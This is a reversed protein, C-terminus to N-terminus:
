NKNPDVYPLPPAYPVITGPPVASGAGTLIKVPMPLITGTVGGYGSQAANNVAATTNTSGGGFLAELTPILRDQSELWLAYGAIIVVFLAVIKNTPM